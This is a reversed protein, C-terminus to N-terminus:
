AETAKQEAQTAQQQATAAAQLASQAQAASNEEAQKADDRQQAAAKASAAAQVAQKTLSQSQQEAGGIRHSLRDVQQSLQATRRELRRISRTAFFGLVLVLGLALLGLLVGASGSNKAPTEHHQHANRTSHARGLGEEQVAQEDVETPILSM